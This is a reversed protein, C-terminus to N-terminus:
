LIPCYIRMRGRLCKLFFPPTPHSQIDKTFCPSRLRECIMIHISGLNFCFTKRNKREGWLGHLGECIFSTTRIGQTDALTGAPFWLECLPNVEWCNWHPIKWLQPGWSSVWWLYQSVWLLMLSGDHGRPNFSFLTSLCLGTAVIKSLCHNGVRCPQSVSLLPLFIDGGQGGARWGSIM